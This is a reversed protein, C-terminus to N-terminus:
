NRISIARFDAFDAFLCLHSFNFADRISRVFISFLIPGLLSGQPVGSFIELSTSKINNIEVYQSRNSLYDAIWALCNGSIGISELCQILKKHCVTDFAKAFDLYLADILFGADISKTWVELTWLLNTITSRGKTFGFQFDDFLRNRSM